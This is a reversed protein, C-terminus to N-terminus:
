REEPLLMYAEVSETDVTRNSAVYQFRKPEPRGSWTVIAFKGDKTWATFQRGAYKTDPLGVDAVEYRTGALLTQEKQPPEPVADTNISFIAYFEVEATEGNIDPMELVQWRLVGDRNKRWDFSPCLWPEPWLWDLPRIGYVQEMGVVSHVDFLEIKGSIIRRHVTGDTYHVVCAAIVWPYNAGSLDKSNRVEIWQGVSAHLTLEQSMEENLARLRAIERELPAIESNVGSLVRDPHVHQGAPGSIILCDGIDFVKSPELWQLTEPDDRYRLGEAAHEKWFDMLDAMTPPMDTAPYNQLIAWLQADPAVPRKMYIFKDRGKREQTLPIRKIRHMFGAKWLRRLANAVGYWDPNDENLNM